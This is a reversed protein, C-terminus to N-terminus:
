LSTLTLKRVTEGKQIDALYNLLRGDKIVKRMLNYMLGGEREM